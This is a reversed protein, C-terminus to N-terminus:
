QASNLDQKSSSNEPELIHCKRLTMVLPKRRISQNGGRRWRNLSEALLICSFYIRYWSQLVEYSLQGNMGWAMCLMNCMILSTICVFHVRSRGPMQAYINSDTQLVTLLNCDRLADKSAIIIVIIIIIMVIIIIIGVVVVLVVVVIVIIM